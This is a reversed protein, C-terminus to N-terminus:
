EAQTEKQNEDPQQDQESDRLKNLYDAAFNHETADKEKIKVEGTEYWDTDVLDKTQETLRVDLNVVMLFSSTLLEVYHPFVERSYTEDQLKRGVEDTRELTSYLQALQAALTSDRLEGLQGANVDFVKRPYTLRYDKLAEDKDWADCAIQTPLWLSGRLASIESRFAVLMSEARNQRDSSLQWDILGLTLLATVIAVAIPWNFLTVLGKLAPLLWNEWIEKLM